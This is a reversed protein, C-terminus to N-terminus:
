GRSTRPCCRARAPGVGDDRPVHLVRVRRRDRARDLDRGRPHGVRDGAGRRRHGRDHLHLERDRRRQVGRRRRRHHRAEPQNAAPDLGRPHLPLESSEWGRGVLVRILEPAIVCVFASAPMLVLANAFLRRRLSLPALERDTQFRSFAPFLVMAVITEYVMAPFKILDYARTYFGLESAGLREGVVFNDGYVALIAFIQTFTQGTGFSMLERLKVRDIRLSVRPPAVALYALTALGEEVMYGTVLAWPGFGAVALVMATTLEICSRRPASSRSRTSLGDAARYMCDRWIASVRRPDRIAGVARAAGDRARVHRLRNVLPAAAVVVATLAFGLWTSVAFSTRVHEDDLQERQILARGVGIDRVSYLVVNVVIAAAVVGFDASTLARGLVAMVVIRTANTAAAGVLNWSVGRRISREVRDAPDAPRM